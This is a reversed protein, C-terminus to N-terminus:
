PAGLELRIRKRSRADAAARVLDACPDHDSAHLVEVGDAPEGASLEIAVASPHLLEVVGLLPRSRAEGRVVLMSLTRYGAIRANRGM